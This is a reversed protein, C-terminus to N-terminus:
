QRRDNERKIADYVEKRHVKVVAPVEIALRVKDGRIDAVGITFDPGFRLAQDKRLIVSLSNSSRRTVEPHAEALLVIPGCVILIAADPRIEDVTVNVNEGIMLAQRAQRSLIIM